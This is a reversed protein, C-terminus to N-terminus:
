IKGVQAELQPREALVKEHDRWSHRGDREKIDESRWDTGQRCFLTWLNDSAVSKREFRLAMFLDYRIAGRSKRRNNWAKKCTLECFQIGARAGCERRVTHCPPSQM